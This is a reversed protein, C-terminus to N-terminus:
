KKNDSKKDDIKKEDSKKDDTRKEDKKDSETKKDEGRVRSIKEVVRKAMKPAGLNGDFIIADGTAIIAGLRQSYIKFTFKYTFFLHDLEIILDAVDRDEVFTLGWEGIEKRKLLENILQEPKFFTTDSTVYITKSAALVEKPSAPKVVVSGPGRPALPTVGRQPMQVSGQPIPYPTNLPSPSASNYIPSAPSNSYSVSRILGLVSSLPVAFNQASTAPDSTVIGLSRGAEDLVLAGALNAADGFGTFQMLRFGSGAGTITDALQVGSLMSSYVRYEGNVNAAVLIRAGVQNEEAGVGAPIVRLQAANVHLLAVNRRADTVAIEARDYIEGNRLRIQIEKANKVLHYATLVYGDSRVVLGSGVSNVRGGDATLIMVVSDASAEALGNSVQAFASFCCFYIISLLFLVSEFKRSM